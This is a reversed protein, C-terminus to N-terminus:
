HAVFRLMRDPFSLQGESSDADLECAVDSTIPWLPLARLSAEALKGEEAEPVAVRRSLEAFRAARRQLQRKEELTLNANAADRLYPAVKPPCRKMAKKTGSRPEQATFVIM